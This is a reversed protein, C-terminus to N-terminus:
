LVNVFLNEWENNNKIKIMSTYYLENNKSSFLIGNYSNIKKISM